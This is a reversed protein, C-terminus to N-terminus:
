RGNAKFLKGLKKGLVNALLRENECYIFDKGYMSQLTRPSCGRGVAIGFTTCTKRADKIANITDAIGISGHYKHCAPEGDSIVVLLKNAAPKAKLLEAAYRISYGDFNNGGADMAMLTERDSKKDNWDVFHTHVADAGKDASFGMIYYPIKLSHFVEAFIISAKRAQDVKSGGMSGSLDVCLAVAADRMNGPDRRKDFIRATTGISGRMINYSGSTARNQEEIDSMFIQEMAKKLAKIEHSYLAVERKYLESLMGSGSVNRARQNLCSARKFASSSIPFDPLPADPTNGEAKSEKDTKAAEREISEEISKLVKEDINYEGEIMENTEDESMTFDDSDDSSSKLPNGSSSGSPDGSEDSEAEADDSSASGSEKSEEDSNDSKQGKGGESSEEDSEGEKQSSNEGESDGGSSKADDKKDKEEESGGSASKSGPEQKEEDEKAKEEIKKVIATRRMSSESEEESPKFSKEEDELLHLGCDRLAKALEELLKRFREADKVEEEWLPRTLEMCEKAIDIRRKSDPCTIGENYLPAIKKFYEYAEPFTFRGKVIGMDGFHILANILQSFATPSKDIGPSLQYIHKISFRLADLLKGGFVNPALFEIAPDELTNAFQMFISAEAQSMDECVKHTYIFNTLCQHLLEHAFIGMRLASKEIDSLGGMYTPNEWAVNVIRAEGCTYGLEPSGDPLWRVGMRNGELIATGMRALSSAEADKRRKVNDM